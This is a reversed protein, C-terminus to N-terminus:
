SDFEFLTYNSSMSKGNDEHMTEASLLKSAYRSTLPKTLPKPKFWPHNLAETASLRTSANKDLLKLVM